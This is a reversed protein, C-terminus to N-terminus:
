NLFGTKRLVGPTTGLRTRFVDTMHSQSSFGCEFAIQALSKQSFGLLHQAKKARRDLVYQYPTVKTTAKLYKVFSSTPMGLARALAESTLNSHQSADIFEDLKRMEDLSLKGLPAITPQVPTQNINLLEAILATTMAETYLPGLAYGRHMDSFLSRLLQIVLMSRFNGNCLGSFDPRGGASEPVLAALRENTIWLYETKVRSAAFCEVEFPTGPAAMSLEDVGILRRKVKRDGFIGAQEHATGNITLVWGGQTVGSFQKPSSHFSAFVLGPLADQYSEVNREFNEIRVHETVAVAPDVVATGQASHRDEM